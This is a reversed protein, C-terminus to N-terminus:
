FREHDSEELIIAAGKGRPQKSGGGTWSFFSAFQFVFM